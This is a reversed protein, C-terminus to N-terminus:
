HALKKCISTECIDINYFQLMHLPFNKAEIKREATQLFSHRKVSYFGRQRQLKFASDKKQISTACIDINNLYNEAEIKRHIPTRRNM